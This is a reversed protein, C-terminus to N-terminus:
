IHINDAAKPLQDSDQDTGFILIYFFKTQM